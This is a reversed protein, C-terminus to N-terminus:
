ENSFTVRTTNIANLRWTLSFNLFKSLCRKNGSVSAANIELIKNKVKLSLINKAVITAFIPDIKVVVLM